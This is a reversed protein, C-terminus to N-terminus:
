NGTGAGEAQVDFIDDQLKQREEAEGKLRAKEAEKDKILPNQEVATEVSMIGAGFAESINKITDTIDDGFPEQWHHEVKMREMQPKLRVELVNGIIACVLSAMRDMMEDWTDKRRDAKIYGLLLVTRLAKASLQAIQRMTDLTVDPTFSMKLITDDLWENEQKKAESAQDYTLFKGAKDLDIDGKVAVTRGSERKEPMSKIVDAKLMLMPDEFYDNSDATRSHKDENREILGQVGDWEVEQRFVIVPIKGILNEEKEVTWGLKAKVCHYIYERTFIEFCEISSDDEAGRGTYGWAFTLLNGYIDWRTYISDGKSAALVRCQVDAKGDDGRFVRFLLASESESGALRKAERLRSNIHVYDLIESYKRFGEDCDESKCSWALPRGLLFTLAMENIYKQQPIALKATKEVRTIVGLKNYVPKDPRKNIEHGRPDYQAYLEMAKQKLCQMKGTARGIDGADLLQEFEQNRGTLYNMENRFFNTFIEFM